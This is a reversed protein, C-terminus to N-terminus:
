RTWGKIVEGLDKMEEGSENGIMMKPKEYIYDNTEAEVLEMFRSSDEINSIALYELEAPSIERKLTIDGTYEVDYFRKYMKRVMDINAYGLEVKLDCRGPRLIAKDIKEIHNTTMVLIRGQGSYVGDIANLLGSLTLTAVTLGDGEVEIMRAKTVDFTDFDEILIISNDSVQSLAELLNRDSIGNLSLVYLHKNYHSCLSKTITTKGTGPPGSLVMGTRYPIAKENYWDKKELFTDIHGIIQEKIGDKLIVTDMNRKPLTQVRLWNGGDWSYIKKDKNDRDIYVKTDDILKRVCEQSRGITIFTMNEKPRTTQNAEEKTKILKFPRWGNFFYHVGYGASIRVTENDGDWKDEARLTRSNTSINRDELLQNMYQYVNDHNNIVIKVTFQRVLFDYIRMPITKFTYTVVGVAWLGIMGGIVPNVKTYSVFINYLDEFYTIKDTFFSLDM